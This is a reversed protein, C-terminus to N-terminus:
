GADRRIYRELQPTAISLFEYNVTSIRKLLELVNPAHESELAEDLDPRFEAWRDFMANVRTRDDENEFQDIVRDRELVRERMSELEIAQISERIKQFLPDDIRDESLDSIFPDLVESRLRMALRVLLFMDGTVGKPRVSEPVYDEIFALTYRRPQENFRDARILVPRFIRGGKFARFTATMVKQNRREAALEVADEVARPWFTGKGAQQEARACIEEWTASEAQLDLLDAFTNPTIESFITDVPIGNTGGDTSLEFRLAPIIYFQTLERANFSAVLDQALTEMEEDRLATNLPQDNGTFAIDRFLPLYFKEYLDEPSTKIAQYDNIQPPLKVPDATLTVIKCPDEAATTFIGAEYILWDIESRKTLDTHLLIFMNSGLITERICRKWDDGGRIDSEDVHVVVGNTHNEIQQKLLRATETDERLHSIFIEFM